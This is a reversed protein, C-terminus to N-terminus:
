PTFQMRRRVLNSDLAYLALIYVPDPLDDTYIKLNYKSTGYIPNINTQYFHTLVYNPRKDDRIETILSLFKNEMTYYRGGYQITFRFGQPRYHQYIQGSMWKNTHDDLINM